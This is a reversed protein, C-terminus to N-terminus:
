DDHPPEDKTQGLMARQLAASMRKFLGGGEDPSSGEVAREPTHPEVPRAPVDKMRPPTPAVPEEKRSATV